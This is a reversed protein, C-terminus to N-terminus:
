RRPAAHAPPMKPFGALDFPRDLSGRADIRTLGSGIQARFNYPNDPDIELLSDGQAAMFFTERNLQGKGDLKFIREGAQALGEESAFTGSFDLKRKRDTLGLKGDRIAFHRIAPLRLPRADEGDGFHWNARGSAERFLHLDPKEVTLEDM